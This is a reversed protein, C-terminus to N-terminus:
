LIPSLIDFSWSLFTSGKLHSTWKSFHSWDPSDTFVATADANPCQKFGLKLSCKELVPRIASDARWNGREKPNSISAFLSEVEGFELNMIDLCKVSYCSFNVRQMKIKVIKVTKHSPKKAGWNTVSQLLM